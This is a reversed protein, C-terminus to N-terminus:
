ARVTDARRARQQPSRPLRSELSPGLLEIPNQLPGIAGARHRRQLVREAGIRIEIQDLLPAAGAIGRLTGRRLRARLLRRAQELRAVSLEVGTTRSGRGLDPGGAKAGRGRRLQRRARHAHRAQLPLDRDRGRDVAAAGPRRREDAGAQRLVSPFAHM